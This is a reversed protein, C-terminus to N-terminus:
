FGQKGRETTIKRLDSDSSKGMVAHSARVSHLASM